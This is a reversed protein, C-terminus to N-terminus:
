IKICKVASLNKDKVELMIDLDDKRGELRQYFNMFESIEISDSHSGAKKNPNQQSYHIKQIGDKIQWTSRCLDIWHCCNDLFINNDNNNEQHHSNLRKNLVWDSPPNAKHHLVDFIVPVKIEGAIKLVDEINYSRDDNELVLRKKIGEDLRQYQYIFRQIAELKHQYIGGIHLIVKHETGLGLSDLVQTHYRLDAIARQVVDDKPSNLVTYQGPHMSVRLGNSKIIDGLQALKPAFLEWWKLKNVPSSGFPILDSSIRYLKIDYAHNYAFINELSNLNHDILELLRRETANKQICSKLATNPVGLTICAYGISM